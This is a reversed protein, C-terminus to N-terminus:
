PDFRFLQVFEDGNRDMGIVIPTGRVASLSASGLPQEFFSLQIRAGGPTRVRHLQPANAFRTRIYMERTAPDWGLFAASRAETFRRLRAPLDAPLAPAGTLEIGPPVELPKEQAASPSPLSLLAAAALILASFKHMDRVQGLSRHPAM